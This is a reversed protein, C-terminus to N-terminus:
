HKNFLMGTQYVAFSVLWALGTTYLVSFAAWKWSGSEKYIAAVTAICPFYLLTFLIFSFTALPTFVPKGAHIGESHTANQIKGQLHNHIVTGKM